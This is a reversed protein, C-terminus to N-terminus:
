SKRLSSIVDQRARAQEETLGDRHVIAFISTPYREIAMRTLWAEAEEFTRVTAEAIFGNMNDGLAVQWGDDFFTVISCNIESRYLEQQVTM